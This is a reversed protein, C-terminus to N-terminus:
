AKYICSLFCCPIWLNTLLGPHSVWFWSSFATPYSGGGWGRRLTDRFLLCIESQSPNMKTSSLENFEVQQEKYPTCNGLSPASTLFLLPPPCRVSSLLRGSSFPHSTSKLPPPPAQLSYVWLSLPSKVRRSQSDSAKSEGTQTEHHPQLTPQNRSSQKM